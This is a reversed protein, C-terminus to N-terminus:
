SNSRCFALKSRGIGRRNRQKKVVETRGAAQRAREDDEASNTFLICKGCSLHRCHPTRCFHDYGKIHQRCIYCFYTRKSSGIKPCNSNPCTIRNCGESKVCALNCLPCHRVIAATMADATSNVASVKQNEEKEQKVEECTKDEHIDFMETCNKCYVSKCEECKVILSHDDDVFGIYSCQPCESTNIGAKLFEQLAVTKDYKELFNVSLKGLQDRNFDGQCPELGTSDMCRFVTTNRGHFQENAYHRRNSLLHSFHLTTDQPVM